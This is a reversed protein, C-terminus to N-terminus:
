RLQDLHHELHAVYDEILWSLTHVQDSNPFAILNTLKDSPISRTVRLIQRNLAQWLALLEEVPMQGYGNVQVLADQAYAQIRYPQPAFQAETFRRLNNLASDCLHGVIEQRSWKGPQRAQQLASVPVAKLLGPVQEIHQALRTLADALTFGPTTYQTEPWM